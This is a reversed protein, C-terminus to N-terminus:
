LQLLARYWHPHRDLLLLHPTADFSISGDSPWSPAASSLTRITVTLDVNSGPQTAQCSAGHKPDCDSCTGNDILLDLEEM